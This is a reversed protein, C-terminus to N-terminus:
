FKKKEVDALIDAAIASVSDSIAVSDNAIKVNDQTAQEIQTVSENIQTIGMTQEKISEAMDNISQVLLNTSAEIESLSKQTREALKRVEDAVVAFGRGHEGARAAEIAANLALLNIQDAIDAIISTINKIEESQVIVEGTKHSVNQMSSTIEELAAATEELSTAQSNSSKTLTRIGEQLKGSEDSLANAFESSKTLMKVIEQGLLNTTVEVIGSANPIQNRFDLTKYEEFIHQIATMDSGVKDRLISLLKNLRLVLADIDPNQSRDEVRVDLNGLEAQNLAKTVKQVIEKNQLFVQNARNINDNLSKAFMGLEDNTKLNLTPPPTQSKFNIYDFFMKLKELIFEIKAVLYKKVFVFIIVVVILFSVIGAILITKFLEKVPAFISDSPAFTAITWYSNSRKGLSFHSLGLYGQSGYLNEYEVVEDRKNEVSSTIKAASQATILSPVKKGLNEKFPHVALSLDPGMLFSYEGEFSRKGELINKSFEEFDIIVGIVGQVVNDKILPISLSAAFIEQGEVKIFRPNGASTKGSSFAQNVSNFQLIETEGYIIQIDKKSGESRDRAVILIDGTSLRAREDINIFHNHLHTGNRAVSFGYTVYPMNSIANGVRAAIDDYSFNLNQDMQSQMNQALFNM